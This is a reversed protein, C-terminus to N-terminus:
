SKLLSNNSRRRPCGEPCLYAEDYCMVRNLQTRTSARNNLSSISFTNSHIFAGISQLLLWDKAISNSLLGISRVFHFGILRGTLAQLSCSCDLTYSDLTHASYNRRQLYARFHQTATTMSSM